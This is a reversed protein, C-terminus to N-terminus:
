LIRGLFSSVVLSDGVLFWIEIITTDDVRIM